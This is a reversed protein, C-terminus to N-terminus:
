YIRPKSTPSEAAAELLTAGEELIITRVTRKNLSYYEALGNVNTYDYVAGEEIDQRLLEIRKKGSTTKLIRVELKQKGRARPM